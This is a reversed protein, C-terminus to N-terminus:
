QVVEVVGKGIVRAHVPAEAEDVLVSVVDNVNGRTTATGKAQMHISGFAVKVQVRERLDVDPIREFDERVAVSGAMVPHRLRMHDLEHPDAVLDGQVLVVDADVPVLKLAVGSTGAAADAAYGLVQRHVDLAFWVAASRVVRGDVCIDVPVGVRARPWRGQLPHLQLSVAGAPVMVDEPKGVVAVQASDREAGLKEDVQGRAAAILRSADVRQLARPSALLASSPWVLMTALLLRFM